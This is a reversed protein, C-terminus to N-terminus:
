SWNPAFTQRIMMGNKRALNEATQSNCNKIRADAKHKILLNFVDVYGCEAAFMLATMGDHDQTNIEANNTSLLLLEAINKFGSKAAIMLATKGNKDTAKTGAKSKLLLEVVEKKRQEVAIM